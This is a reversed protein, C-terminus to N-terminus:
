TRKGYLYHDHRLSADRLIGPTMDTELTLFLNWGKESPPEPESAAERTVIRIEGHQVLVQIQPGLGAQELWASYIWIGHQVYLHRQATM